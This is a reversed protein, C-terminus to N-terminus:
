LSRGIWAVIEAAKLEVDRMFAEATGAFSPDAVAKDAAGALAAQLETLAQDARQRAAALSAIAPEDPAVTGEASASAEDTM